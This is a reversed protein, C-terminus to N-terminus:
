EGSNKVGIMPFVYPKGAMAKALGLVGFLILTSHVTTFYLVVIVWTWAWDMGGLLIILGCALVLLVAGWLSVFFTQALHNRALPPASRHHKLWLLALFVFGIGPALMLNIIYLAEAKVALGQGNPDSDTNM